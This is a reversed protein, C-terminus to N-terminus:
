ASFSAYVPPAVPESPVTKAAKKAAVRARAAARREPSWSFKKPKKKAAPKAKISKIKNTALESKNKDIAEDLSVLIHIADAYERATILAKAIREAEEISITILAM